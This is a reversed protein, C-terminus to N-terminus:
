LCGINLVKMTPPKWFRLTKFKWYMLKMLNLVQTESRSCM